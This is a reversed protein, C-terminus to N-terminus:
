CWSRCRAAGSAPRSCGRATGAACRRRQIEGSATPDQWPRRRHEPRKGGTKHPPAAGPQLDVGRPGWAQRKDWCAASALMCAAHVAQGAARRGLGGEVAEISPVVERFQKLREPGRCLADAVARRLEDADAEEAPGGLFQGKGHALGKAQIFSACDSLM